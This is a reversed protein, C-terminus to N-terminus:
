LRTIYNYLYNITIKVWAEGEMSKSNIAAILEAKNLPKYFQAFQYQIDPAQEVRRAIVPYDDAYIILGGQPTSRPRNLLLSIEERRQDDVSMVQVLDNWSYFEGNYQVVAREREAVPMKMIVENVHDAVAM